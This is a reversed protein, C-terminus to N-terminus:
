YHRAMKPTSVLINGDEDAVLFYSHAIKASAADVGVFINVRYRDEWLPQVQVRQLDGPNGVSHIVRDGIVALRQQYGQDELDASRTAKQKMPDRKGTRDM